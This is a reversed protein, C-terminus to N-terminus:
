KVFILMAKWNYGPTSLYHAPDLEFYNISEKRFTESMCALLLANVKLFLDHYDKMTKMRFAKWVNITKMVKINIIKIVLQM